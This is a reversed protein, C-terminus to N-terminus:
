PWKQVGHLIRNIEIINARIRYIILYPLGSVILERTNPKRGPRGRTPLSKLSEAGDYITVATRHAQAPGFHEQTYDCIQTLDSAATQTWRVLM